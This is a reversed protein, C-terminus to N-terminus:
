NAFNNAQDHTAHHNVVPPLARETAWRNQRQWASLWGWWAATLRLWQFAFPETLHLLLAHRYTPSPASTWRRFWRLIWTNMAADLLWKALVGALIIFSIQGGTSLFFITSLLTHHSDVTAIRRNNQNSPAHVRLLGVPGPWDSPSLDLANRYLRWVMPPTASLFTSPSTPADTQAWANPVITVRCPRHHQDRHLANLRYMVDYDEVWSDTRFGQIARLDEAHFAACAGSVLLLSDHRSWVLRFLFSRFYESQQHALMWRASASKIPRDPMLIGCAVRITPDSFAQTLAPLSGPALLTDADLTLVHPTKVLALAANLSAPKGSNEKRIVTINKTLPQIGLSSFDEQAPPSLKLHQALVAATDDTSGDDIIILHDHRGLQPLVTALTNPLSAAENFAPILVTIAQSDALPGFTPDPAKCPQYCPQNHPQNRPQCDAKSGSTHGVVRQWVHVLKLGYRLHCLRHWHQGSDM